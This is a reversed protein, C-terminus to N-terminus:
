GVRNVFSLESHYSAFIPRVTLSDDTGCFTLAMQFAALPSGNYGIPYLGVPMFVAPPSNGGVLLNVSLADKNEPNINM